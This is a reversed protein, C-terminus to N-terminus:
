GTGRSRSLHSDWLRAGRPDGDVEEAPVMGGVDHNVASQTGALGIRGELKEEDARDLSGPRHEAGEIRLLPGRDGRQGGWRVPGVEDPNGCLSRSSPRPGGPRCRTRAYASGHEGDSL